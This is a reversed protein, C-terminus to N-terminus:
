HIIITFRFSRSEGAPLAVLFDKDEIALPSELFDHHSVMPEICAYPRGPPEPPSWLNVNPFDGLDVSVFPARGKVALGIVRSPTNELFMGGNPIREDGLGLADENDLFPVHEPHILSDAIIPRSTTLAQSFVFQIDRREIGEGLPFTFGPHGGLAFRMTDTGTNHVVFQNILRNGELRYTVELRFPFPYHSLLEDDSELVFTADSRGRDAQAIFPRHIALGMKPLDHLRGRYTFQNDKFRVNVPFMIPARGEWFAPDGHWLYERGTDKQRIGFLEAGKPNIEVALTENEITVLQGPQEPPTTCAGLFALLLVPFSKAISETM